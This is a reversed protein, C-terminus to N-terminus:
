IYYIGWVIYIGIYINLAYAKILIHLLHVLATPTITNYKKKYNISTVLIFTSEVYKLSIVLEDNGSKQVVAANLTNGTSAHLNGAEPSFIYM